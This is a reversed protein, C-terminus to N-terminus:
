DLLALADRASRRGAERGAAVLEDIGSWATLPIGGTDPTIVLDAGRERAGAPDVSGLVMSRMVTEKINPVSAASSGTLAARARGTMRTRRRGRGTPAKAPTFRASVDVGIVPGEGRGAMEGVPLNDLVGGDVLLRGESPIPAFIAPLCMTAGLAGAVSGRRHIVPSADVLDCSLCFFELPLEEIRTSGFGRAIMQRAKASRLVSYFPLTYDNMPNREVFEERCRAAVEDPSCGSAFTAAIYAGMSTGGFRDITVGANLLEAVVGVHALGRAGGGSLVIGVSRGALRRAIRELAQEDRVLHVTRPDLAEVWAALARPRTSTTVLVLECGRLRPDPAADPAVSPDALAVKRDATRIAFDTWAGGGGAVIVVREHQRECRDLLRGHGEDSSGDEERLADVSGFGRLAGVLREAFGAVDIGRGLGVLSIVRPPAAPPLTGPRAAGLLGGLHRTVALTFDADERLLREFSDRTVRMLSTDRRARVGASRVSETLLAVEGVLEGRPLLRLVEEPAPREAVVELSGSIVVYLSDAPEGQHFLWDGAPVRRPEASVLLRAWPSGAITQGRLDDALDGFLM